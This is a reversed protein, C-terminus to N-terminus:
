ARGGVEIALNGLLDAVCRDGPYIITTSWNDEIM